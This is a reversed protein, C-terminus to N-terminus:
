RQQTDAPATGRGQGGARTGLVRLRHSMQSERFLLESRTSSTAQRQPSRLSVRMLSQGNPTVADDIVQLHDHQHHRQMPQRGPPRPAGGEACTRGPHQFQPYATTRRGRRRYSHARWTARCRAPGLAEERLILTRAHAPSQCQKARHRGHPRSVFSALQGPEAASQADLQAHNGAGANVPQEAKVSVAASERSEGRAAKLKQVQNVSLQTLEAVQAMPVAEALIRAIAAGLKAEAAEIVKAADDREDQALYVDAGGSRYARRAEKGTDLELRRQRANAIRAAREGARHGQASKTTRGM